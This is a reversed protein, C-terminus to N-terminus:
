QEERVFMHECRWLTGAAVSPLPAGPPPRLPARHRVSAFGAAGLARAMAEAAVRAQARVDGDAQLGAVSWRKRLSTGAGDAVLEWEADALAAQTGAPARLDPSEALWLTAEERGGNYRGSGISVYIWFQVDAGIRLYRGVYDARAPTVNGLSSGAIREHLMPMLDSLLEVGWKLDPDDPLNQVATTSLVQRNIGVVFEEAVSGLEGLRGEAALRAVLDRVERWSVDRCRITADSDAVGTESSRNEAAPDRSLTGVRRVKAEGPGERALREWAAVYTDPQLTPGEDGDHIHFTADVKVEVVLQLRGGAVDVSIDPYLRGPLTLESHRAGTADGGVEALDAADLFLGLFAVAFAPSRDLFWVLIRSVMEERAHRLPSARRLVDAFLEPHPYGPETPDRYFPM